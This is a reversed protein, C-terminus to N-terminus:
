KLVRKKVNNYREVKKVMKEELAQYTKFMRGCAFENVVVSDKFPATIKNLLGEAVEKPYEQTLSYMTREPRYYGLYKANVKYVLEDNINRAITFVEENSKYYDSYKDDNVKYNIVGQISYDLLDIKVNYGNGAIIINDRNIKVDMFGHNILIFNLGTKITMVEVDDYNFEDKGLTKIISSYVIYHLASENSFSLKIGLDNVRNIISESISIM